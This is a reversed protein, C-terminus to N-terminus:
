DLLGDLGSNKHIIIRNKRTLKIIKDNFNAMIDAHQGDLFQRMLEKEKGIRDMLISHDIQEAKRCDAMFTRLSIRSLIDKDTFILQHEPEDRRSTNVIFVQQTSTKSFEIQLEEHTKQLHSWFRRKLEKLQPELGNADEKMDHIYGNKEKKGHNKGPKFQHPILEEIYDYGFEDVESNIYAALMSLIGYNFKGDIQLRAWTSYLSGYYPKGQYDAIDKKRWKEQFQFDAFDYDHLTPFSLTSKGKSFSENLFFYDEGIGQLPLMVGNITTWQAETLHGEAEDMEDGNTVTIDFLELMLFQRINFEDEEPIQIRYEEQQEENWTFYDPVFKMIARILEPIM